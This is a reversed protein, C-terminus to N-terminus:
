LLAVFEGKSLARQLIASVQLRGDSDVLGVEVAAELVLVTRITRPDRARGHVM